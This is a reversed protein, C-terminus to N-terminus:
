HAVQITIRRRKLNQVARRPASQAAKAEPPNPERRRAPSGRLPGRLPPLGGNVPPLMRGGLGFLGAMATLAGLLGIRRM